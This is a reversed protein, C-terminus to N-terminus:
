QRKVAGWTTAAKGYPNVIPISARFIGAFDWDEYRAVAYLRSQHSVLDSIRFEQLGALIWTESRRDFMYVGHNRLGAFLRGTHVTLTDINGEEVSPLGQILVEWDREPENWRVLTHDTNGTAVYLRNNLEAFDSVRSIPWGGAAEWTGGNDPSRVMSTGSLAAWLYGDFEAMKWINYGIRGDQWDDGVGHWSDGRNNSIYTGQHYAVAIVAGSRTVLIQEIIPPASNEKLGNSWASGM